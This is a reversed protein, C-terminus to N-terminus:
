EHMLMILIEFKVELTRALLVMKLLKMMHVEKVLLTPLLVRQVPGAGEQLVTRQMLIQENLFLTILAAHKICSLWKTM